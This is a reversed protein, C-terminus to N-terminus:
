LSDIWTIQESEAKIVSVAFNNDQVTAQFKIEEEAVNIKLYMQNDSQMCISLSQPYKTVAQKLRVEDRRKHSGFHYCRFNRLLMRGSSSVDINFYM